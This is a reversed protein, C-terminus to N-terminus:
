LAVSNDQKFISLAASDGSFTLTHTKIVTLKSNLLPLSLAIAESIMFRQAIGLAKKTNEKNRKGNLYAFHFFRPGQSIEPANAVKRGRLIDAIKVSALHNRLRGRLNLTEGIYFPQTTTTGFSRVFCYVGPVEKISTLDDDTVVLKKNEALM